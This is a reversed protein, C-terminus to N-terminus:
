SERKTGGNEQQMANWFVDPLDKPKQPQRQEAATWDYIQQSAIWLCNTCIPVLDCRPVLRARNHTWNGCHCELTTEAKTLQM